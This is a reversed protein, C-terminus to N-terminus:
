REAWPPPSLPEERRHHHTLRDKCPVLGAHAWRRWSWQHPRAHCAEIHDHHHPHPYPQATSPHLPHLPHINHLLPLVAMTLYTAKLQPINRPLSPFPLFNRTRLVYFSLHYKSSPRRRARVVPSNCQVLVTTTYRPELVRSYTTHGILLPLCHSCNIEFM